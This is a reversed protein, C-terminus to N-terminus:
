DPPRFARRVNPHTREYEHREPDAARYAETPTPELLDDLV